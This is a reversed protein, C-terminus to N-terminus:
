DGFACGTFFNTRETSNRAPSAVRGAQADDWPVTAACATASGTETSVCAAGTVAGGASESDVVCETTTYKSESLASIRAEAM